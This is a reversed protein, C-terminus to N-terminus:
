KKIIKFNYNGEVTYVKMLYVGIPLDEINMQNEINKQITLVRGNIDFLEFKSIRIEPDIYIIGDTPNPYIKLKPLNNETVALDIQITTTFLNTVIPENYDFFINADNSFSDGPELNNKTKIKFLIYGTNLNEEHSLYIDDFVFEVLHNTTRTYFNHSSELPTLSNIDFKSEDIEDKVVINIADASGNNEFRILYHVFEGIQEESIYEGELCTKDNPDYSNVVSQEIVFTNDDETEDGSLPNVVASLVITDGSNVSTSLNLTLSIERTEFAELNSYNWAFQGYSQSDIEPNSSVIDFLGDEFNLEIEGSLTITGKNKYVINYEINFGPRPAVTPILYIELDNFQGTPSLCFDATEMNGNSDFDVQISSPNVQYYDSEFGIPTITNETFPTFIKFNGNQDSYVFGDNIQNIKLKYNPIKTSTEECDGLEDYRVTGEIMYNHNPYASFDIEWLTREALLYSKDLGKFTLVPYGAQNSVRSFFNYNYYDFYEDYYFIDEKTGDMWIWQEITVDFKWLDYGNRSGLDGGYLWLNGHNDDWYTSFRRAGVQNSSQAVQFVGYNVLNDTYRNGFVKEWTNEAISYKWVDTLLGFNYPVYPSDTLGIGRGGSFYLDNGKRWAFHNEVCSPYDDFFYNSNNLCQDYGGGMLIWMQTSTDYKWFDNQLGGQSSKGGQFWLNEDEDVWTVANERSRPYNDSSPVGIEGYHNFEAENNKVGGIWTWIKAAKDFEWFDNYLTQGTRGGMVFLKNQTEWLSGGTRFPPFNTEQGVGREGYQGNESLDPVILQNESTQIDYEWLGWNEERNGRKVGWMKEGQNGWYMSNPIEPFNYVSPITKDYILDNYDSKPLSSKGDVWSFNYTALNFKWIDIYAATSSSEGGFLYISDGEKWIYAKNRAAPTNYEYEEGKKGYFGPNDPKINGKIWTWQNSSMNYQWMSNHTGEGVRPKDGGFFYVKSGNVITNSTKSLSPPTNAENSVGKEGFTGELSEPFKMCTWLNTSLNYRWVQNYNQNPFSHFITGGFFWLYGDAYWSNYNLLNGPHNMENEVGVEVINQMTWYHTPNLPNEYLLTWSNNLINYRWLDTREYQNNVGGAGGYIYINGTDDSIADVMNRHSPFFESSEVGIEGYFGDIGSNDGYGGIWAWQELTVDYKWLDNYYVSSTGNLLYLNGQMDTWTIGLSKRTGPDNTSSFIGKEGRNLPSANPEICKWQNIDLDYVWFSSNNYYDSGYMYVRNGSKWLLSEQSQFTSPINRPSFEGLTQYHENYWERQGTNINEVQTSASSYIIIFFLAFRFKM